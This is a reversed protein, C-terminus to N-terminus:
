PALGECKLKVYADSSAADSTALNLTAGGSSNTSWTSDGAALYFRCLKATDVTTDYAECKCDLFSSNSFTGSALVMDTYVGAGSRTPPSFVGCSDYVEVCTGTTCETPAALTASAGGFAYYCTKPKDVNPVRMM